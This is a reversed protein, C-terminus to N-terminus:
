MYEKRLNQIPWVSKPAKSEVCFDAALGLLSSFKSTKDDFGQLRVLIGLWRIDKRSEFKPRPFGVYRIPM